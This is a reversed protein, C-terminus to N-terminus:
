GPGAGADDDRATMDRMRQARDCIGRTVRQEIRPEAGRLRLLAPDRAPNRSEADDHDIRAGLACQVGSLTQQGDAHFGDGAFEMAAVGHHYSSLVSALEAAPENGIVGGIRTAEDSPAGDFYLGNEAITSAILHDMAVIQSQGPRLFIHLWSR